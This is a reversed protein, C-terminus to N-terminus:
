LWPIVGDTNCMKIEGSEKRNNNKPKNKQKNQCYGNKM